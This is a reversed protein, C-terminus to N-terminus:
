SHNPSIMKRGFTFDESRKLLFIYAKQSSNHCLQVGASYRVADMISNMVISSM